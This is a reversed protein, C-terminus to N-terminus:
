EVDSDVSDDDDESDSYYEEEDEDDDEDNGVNRNLINGAFGGPLGVITGKKAESLIQDIQKFHDGNPVMGVDIFSRSITNQFQPTNFEVETLYLLDKIGETLSQKVLEFEPYIIELQHPDNDQNNEEHEAQEMIHNYEETLGVLFGLYQQFENYASVARAERTHAKVPGNVVLDLVQLYPTMNPPFLAAFINKQNFETGLFETVHSTCNDMWVLLKGQLQREPELILDVFMSMKVEDMWAKHQSTIVHKRQQHYLYLCKHEAIEQRHKGIPIWKTWTKLEWGDEARFGVQKHLSKIVRMHTEDM